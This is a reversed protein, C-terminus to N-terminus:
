TVVALRTSEHSRRFDFSVVENRLSFLLQSRPETQAAVLIVLSSLQEAFGRVEEFDGLVPATRALGELLHRLAVDLQLTRVFRGRGVLICRVAVLLHVCSMSDEDVLFSHHSPPHFRQVDCVM